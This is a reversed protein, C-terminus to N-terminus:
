EAITSQWMWNACDTRCRRWFAEMGESSKMNWIENRIQDMVKQKLLVFQLYTVQQRLEELESTSTFQATTKDLDTM